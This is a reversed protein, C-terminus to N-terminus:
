LALHGENPENALAALNGHSGLVLKEDTFLVLPLIDHCVHINGFALEMDDALACVDAGEVVTSCWFTYGM